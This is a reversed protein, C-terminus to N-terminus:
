IARFSDDVQLADLLFDIALYAGLSIIVGVVAAVLIGQGKKFKEANGFSLIMTIGGYIFMIFAVSGTISFIYRGINVALEVLDNVNRCGKPSFACDPLPGSYGAPAGADKKPCELQNPLYSCNSLEDSAACTAACYREASLEPDLSISTVDAIANQIKELDTAGNVNREPFQICTDKGAMRLKCVAADAPTPQFLLCLAAVSFGITLLFRKM